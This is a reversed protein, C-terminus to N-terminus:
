ISTSNHLSSAIAMEVTKNVNKYQVSILWGVIVEIKLFLKVHQSITELCWALFKTLHQTQEHKRWGRRKYRAIVWYGFFPQWCIKFLLLIYISKMEHKSDKLIMEIIAISDDRLDIDNWCSM